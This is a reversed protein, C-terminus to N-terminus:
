SSSGTANSSGSSPKTSSSTSANVPLMRISEGNKEDLELTKRIHPMYNSVSHDGMFSLHTSGHNRNSGPGSTFNDESLLDFRGFAFNLLHPHSHSPIPQQTSSVHSHSSGCSCSESHQNQGHSDLVSADVHGNVPQKAANDTKEKLPAGDVLEAGHDVIMDAESLAVSYKSEYAHDLHIIGKIRYFSDSPLDRFLNIWSSLTFTRQPPAVLDLVRVDTDEHAMTLADMTPKQEGEVVSNAMNRDVGVVLEWPVSGNKTYIKPTDQNLEYLEDLVRDIRPEKPEPVLERKNLLLLDTYSAQMRATVSRDIYGSHNALDIVCIVGDLFIPLSEGLRRLEWVMPAPLASGSTEIFIRELKPHSSTPQSSGDNGNATDNPLSLTLLETLADGLQGVQTCCLCGNLMEKVQINKSRAMRSDVDMDGYENKLWAITGVSADGEQEHRQRILDLFLTTKGSGLFGSMVTVAVPRRYVAKLKSAAANANTPQAVTDNGNTNQQSTSQLTSTASSPAAPAPAPASASASSSDAMTIVSDIHAEPESV